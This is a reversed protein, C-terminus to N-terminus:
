GQVSHVDKNGKTLRWAGNRLQNHRIFGHDEYWEPNYALVEVAKYPGTQAIQILAETMATGFGRGRWEPHVFVGKVRVNQGTEILGCFGEHRPLRFWRTRKTDSISVHERAAFRAYPYVYSYPVEVLEPM